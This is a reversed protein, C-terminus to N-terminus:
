LRPVFVADRHSTHVHQYNHRTLLVAVDEVEAGYRALLTPELEIVLVPFYTEILLQAGMLADFELGEIDLKVLDPEYWGYIQALHDLSYLHLPGHEEHEVHYQGDNDGHSALRGRSEDLGVACQLIEIDAPHVEALEHATSELHALHEEHPEIAIVRDFYAAMFGTWMGRHAGVDVALRDGKCHRLAEDFLARDREYRESTMISKKSM